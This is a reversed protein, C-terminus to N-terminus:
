KEEEILKQKFENYGTCQGCCKCSQGFMFCEGGYNEECAFKYAELAKEIMEDEAIEIAKIISDDRWVYDQDQALPSNPDMASSSLYKKAKISIM